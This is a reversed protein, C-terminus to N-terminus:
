RPRRAALSGETAVAPHGRAKRLADGLRRDTSLVRPRRCSARVCVLARDVILPYHCGTAPPRQPRRRSGRARYRVWCRQSLAKPALGTSVEAPCLCGTRGAWPPCLCGTAPPRQPRRRSGRARYRVWCRQSPAKPALGTSVGAQAGGVTPLSVRDRAAAAAAKAIRTRPLAGLMTSLAGEARAGYEGWSAGRGRHTSVGPRPRGSRGGERDAHATACGADNLPRRRRGRM